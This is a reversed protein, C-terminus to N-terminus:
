LDGQAASQSNPSRCFIRPAVRADCRPLALDWVASTEFASRAFIITPIPRSATPAALAGGAPVLILISSAM